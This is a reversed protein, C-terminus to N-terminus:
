QLTTVSQQFQRAEPTNLLKFLPRGTGDFFVLYSVGPLCLREGPIKLSVAPVITAHDVQSFSVTKSRRRGFPFAVITIRDDEVEIHAKELNKMSWCTWALFLLPLVALLIACIMRGAYVAVVYAGLAFIFYLMLFGISLMWKVRKPMGPAPTSNHINLVM